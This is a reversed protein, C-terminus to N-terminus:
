GWSRCFVEIRPSKEDAFVRSGDTNNVVYHSKSKLIGSFVLCDLLGEVYSTVSNNEKKSTYFVGIVQCKQSIANDSAVFANTDLILHHFKHMYNIYQQSDQVMPQGERNKVIVKAVPKEMPEMPIIAHFLLKGHTDSRKSKLSNYYHTNCIDVLDKCVQQPLSDTLYVGDRDCVAHGIAEQQPAFDDLEAKISKVYLPLALHNNDM